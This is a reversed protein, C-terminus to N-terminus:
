RVVKINLMPTGLSGWLRLWLPLYMEVGRSTTIDGLDIVHKWGFWQRLYESVRAKAGADNGSVFVHHDGGALQGPDIMVYANVTNLTKVVKVGPFARQIQEGTSDSNCLSLTPPMGRSFDLPNALDMLIKGNLHAEGALRLADVSVGGATANILVDGHAACEAFTGVKVTPHQRHWEAFPERQGMGPTTRAMLEAVNRTGLMVDHGTAALKAGVIQGVMGTGLIGIRM